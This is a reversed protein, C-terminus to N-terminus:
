LEFSRSDVLSVFVVGAVLDFLSSSFLDQGKYFISRQDGIQLAAKQCVLQIYSASSDALWFSFLIERSM